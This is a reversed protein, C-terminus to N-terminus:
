TKFGWVSHLAFYSGGKLVVRDPHDKPRGKRGDEMEWRGDGM